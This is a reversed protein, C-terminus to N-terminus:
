AADWYKANQGTAAGVAIHVGNLSTNPDNVVRAKAGVKHTTPDPLLAYTDYLKDPAEGEVWATGDWRDVRDLADIAVRQGTEQETLADRAALDAVTIEYDLVAYAGDQVTYSLGNTLTKVTYGDAQSAAEARAAKNAVSAYLDGVSARPVFGYVTDSFVKVIVDDNVTDGVVGGPTTHTALKKAPM